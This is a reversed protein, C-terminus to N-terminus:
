QLVSMLTDSFNSRLKRHQEMQLCIVQILTGSILHTQAYPLSPSLDMSKKKAAGCMIEAAVPMNLLFSRLRQGFLYLLDFSFDGFPFYGM